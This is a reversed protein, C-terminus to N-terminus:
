KWASYGLALGVAAATAVAQFAFFVRMVLMRNVNSTLIVIKEDYLLSSTRSSPGGSMSSALSATLPGVKLWPM